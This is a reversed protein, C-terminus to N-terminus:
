IMEKIKKLVEMIADVEYQTFPVDDRIKINIDNSKLNCEKCISALNLYPLLHKIKQEQERNVM